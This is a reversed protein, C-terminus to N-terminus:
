RIVDLDKGDVVDGDWAQRVESLLTERSAGMLLQHTLVLVRPRVQAALCGLDPGSTHYVAHYARWVPTRKAWGAECYVEHVLIEAGRAHEVMREDYTTDGSVVITKDRAEFRYGFAETWAGHRVPFAIVRVNEDRYVEGAGVEVARVEYSEARAPEGGGLRVERDERFAEVIRDTMARLGKPGYVQLPETRHLVGPTLILDPYGLTHDSHLHTVFARSLDEVRLGAEVARRVVGTGCDVLYPRGGSVIALAPGQRDPTPNPTGTGLLVVHTDSEDAPLAAAALVALLAVLARIM